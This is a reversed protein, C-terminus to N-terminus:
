DVRDERSLQDLGVASLNQAHLNNPSDSHRRAAGQETNSRTVGRRRKLSIASLDRNMRHRSSKAIQRLPDCIKLRGGPM